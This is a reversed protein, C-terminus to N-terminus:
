HVVVSTPKVYAKPYEEKVWATFIELAGKKIGNACSKAYALAEEQTGKPNHTSMFINLLIGFAADNKDGISMADVIAAFANERQETTNM